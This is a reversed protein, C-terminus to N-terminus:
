EVCLHSSRFAYFRDSNVAEAHRKSRIAQVSFSYVGVFVCLLCCKARTEVRLAEYPLGPSKKCSVEIKKLMSCGQLLVALSIQGEGSSMVLM